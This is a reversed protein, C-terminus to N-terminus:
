NKIPAEQKPLTFFFTTGKGVESEVWIKSDHKDIFEKCLILGLGTGSEDKTGRSTIKEGIKFLKALVEKPMGTGADKVSVVIYDNDESYDAVDIAITTNDFSFKIANSVLNRIVTLILNTDCFVFYKEYEEPTQLTINKVFAQSKLHGACTNIIDVIDYKHPNYGIAGMSSRAWELLNELLSYAQKSAENLLIINSNLEIVEPLEKDPIVNILANYDMDLLEGMKYLSSIPNKLDHAIISFFKDKTANLKMLEKQQKVLLDNQNLIHLEAIKRETINRSIGIIDSLEGDKDTAIQVMVDLWILMGDKHKRRAEYEFVPLKKSNKNKYEELKFNILDMVFEFEDEAYIDKMTLKTFEESTYGLVEYCSNSVFTYQLTKLDAIWIIDSSNEIIFNYKLLKKRQAELLLEQTKRENINRLTSIALLEGKEDAFITTAVEVWILNGNMHYKQIEFTAKAEGKARFEAISQITLQNVTDFHEPPLTDSYPIHLAEEYSYGFLSSYNATIFDYKFTKLNLVTVVDNSNEIFMKFRDETKVIQKKSHKLIIYLFLAVLFAAFYLMIFIAPISNTAFQKPNPYAALIWEGLPLLIPIKIVNKRNFIASDGFFVEGMEGTGNRGRLAIEIFDDEETLEAVEKFKNWLIVIDTVGSTVVENTRSNTIFFPMYSVIGSDGQALELPGDVYAKREEISKKLNEARASDWTLNFGIATKNQEYPAVYTIIFDPEYAMSSIVNQADNQLLLDVFHGFNQQNFNEKYEVFASLSKNLNIRTHLEYSIKAAKSNAMKYAVKYQEKNNKEITPILNLTIAIVALLLFIASVFMPKALLISLKIM